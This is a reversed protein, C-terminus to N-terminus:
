NGTGHATRSRYGILANASAVRLGADEGDFVDSPWAHRERGHFNTFYGEADSQVLFLEIMIGDLAFARKHIFRKARIESFNPEGMLVVDVRSFDPAPYLLDVDRHPRSPSLGRLEEGWGGFVWVCVGADDLVRMVKELFTRDNVAAM